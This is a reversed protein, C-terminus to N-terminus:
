ECLVVTSPLVHLRTRRRAPSGHVRLRAAGVVEEEPGCVTFPAHPGVVRRASCPQDAGRWSAVRLAGLGLAVRPLVMVAAVPHRAADFDFARPKLASRTRFSASRTIFALDDAGVCRRRTATRQFVGTCLLGRRRFGDDLCEQHLM